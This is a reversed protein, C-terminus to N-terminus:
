TAPDKNKTFVKTVYLVIGEARYVEVETGAPYEQDSNISWSSDGLHLRGKGAPLTETLVIREGLWQQTRKNLTSQQDHKRDLHHQYRWWLWTTILSFAAFCSWQLAWSLPMVALLLSIALASIGLWLLYGAAGVLEFCLLILGLILWHWPHMQQLLEIM